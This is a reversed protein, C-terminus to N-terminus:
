HCTQSIYIFIIKHQSVFVVICFLSESVKLLHTCLINSHPSFSRPRVTYEKLIIHFTINLQKKLCWATTHAPLTQKQACTSNCLGKVEPSAVQDTVHGLLFLLKIHRGTLHKDWTLGMVHVPVGTIELIRSSVWM